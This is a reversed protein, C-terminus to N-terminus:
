IDEFKSLYEVELTMGHKPVCPVETGLWSEHHASTTWREVRAKRGDGGGWRPALTTHFTLLTGGLVVGGGVSPNLPGSMGARILPYEGM